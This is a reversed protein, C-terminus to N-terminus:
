PSALRPAVEIHAAGSDFSCWLSRRSIRVGTLFCARQAVDNDSRARSRIWAALRRLAGRGAAMKKLIAHPLGDVTFRGDSSAFGVLSLWPCGIGVTADQRPLQCQHSVPQGELLADRWSFERFSARSSRKRRFRDRHRGKLSGRRGKPKLKGCAGCAATSSSESTTSATRITKKPSRRSPGFKPSFPCGSTQPFPRSAPPSSSRAKPQPDFPRRGTM